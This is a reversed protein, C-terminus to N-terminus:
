NKSAKIQENFNIFVSFLLIMLIGFGLTIGWTRPSQLSNSIDLFLDFPQTFLEWSNWRLFRGLYIGYGSLFSIIIIFALAKQISFRKKLITYIDLMSTIGLYLGNWAYVFFLFTDFWLLSSDHRKLHMLDTVIYPANPLFLLWISLTGILVLTNNVKFHTLGQSLVYPIGALFLNWVLFMYTISHTLKVRFLILALSFCCTFFVIKHQTTFLTKM